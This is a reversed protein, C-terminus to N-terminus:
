AVSESASSSAGGDSTSTAAVASLILEDWRPRRRAAARLSAIAHSSRAARATDMATLARSNKAHPNAHLALLGDVLHTHDHRAAAHLPWLGGDPTLPGNPDLGQDIISRLASLSATPTVSVDLLGLFFGAFASTGPRPSDGGCSCAQLFRSHEGRSALVASVRAMSDPGEDHPFGGGHEVLLSVLSPWAQDERALLLELPRTMGDHLLCDRLLPRRKGSAKSRSSLEFYRELLLTSNLEALCAVFGFPWGEVDEELADDLRGCKSAEALLLEWVDMGGRTFAAVWILPFRATATGLARQMALDLVPPNVEAWLAGEELLGALATADGRRVAHLVHGLALTDALAGLRPAEAGLQHLDERLDTDEERHLGGHERHVLKTDRTTSLYRRAAASGGGCPAARLPRSERAHQGPLQRPSAPHLGGTIAAGATIAASRKGLAGGALDLLECLDMHCLGRAPDACIAAFTKRDLAAPSHPDHSHVGAAARFLMRAEELSLFSDRDVDFRELLAAALETLQADYAGGTSGMAPPLRSLREASHSSPSAKEPVPLLRASDADAGRVTSRRLEVGLRKISGLMRELLLETQASAGDSIRRPARRRRRVGETRPGSRGSSSCLRDAALYNALQDVFPSAVRSSACSTASGGGVSTPGASLSNEVCSRRDMSRRDGETRPKSRGSRNCLPDDVINNVLQEVLPSIVRSSPCSTVSVGEVYSVAPPSAAHIGPVSVGGGPM